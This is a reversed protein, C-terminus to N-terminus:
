DGSHRNMSTKGDGPAPSTVGYVRSESETNKIQLQSRIQHVAFASASALEQDSLANGLDPLMGIIGAKSGSIIDDDSYQIRHSFYGLALIAMTPISGLGVFGVAGMKIRADSTPEKAKTARAAISIKGTIEKMDEVLSETEIMDLRSNVEALSKQINARDGRLSDLSLSANFLKDAAEKANSIQQDLLELRYQLVSESPLPKGNEDVFLASGEGSEIAEMREDIRTQINDIMLTIRRVDRHEARLGESAMMQERNDMLRQKQELLGALMPDMNAAEEPTMPETEGSEHRTRLQAYLGLQQDLKRRQEELQRTVLMSNQILPQLNETQYDGAIDAIQNDIRGRQRALDDKRANLATVIEPNKISGEKGYKEIYADLVANVITQSIVPDVDEFSVRIIEQARRDPRIDLRRLVDDLTLTPARSSVARWEDGSLANGVVNPDSILQAQSNVFSSFMKPATSQESEYLVKPLSPQIRVMGTSKYMPQKSLFGLTAGTVGFVLGLVLAWIYRGRLLRHVTAFPNSHHHEQGPDWNIQSANM